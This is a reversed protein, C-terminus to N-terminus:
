FCGDKWSEDSSRSGAAPRPSPIASRRPTAIGSKGAGAGASGPRPISRRAPQPLGTRQPSLGRRVQTPQRLGSVNPSAPRVQPQLRSLQRPEPATRDYDDSGGSSNNDLYPDSSHFGPPQSIRSVNQLSRRLGPTEGQNPPNLYQSGYPSDPPSSIDSGISNSQSNRREGDQRCPSSRNSGMNSASNDIDNNGGVVSQAPQRSRKGRRPSSQNQSLSQRLSEEQQKALNEIDAVDPHQKDDDRYSDASRPSDDQSSWSGQKVIPPPPERSKKPRTFTGTDLRSIKGTHTKKVAPKHNYLPTSDASQSMPSFGRTPSPTTLSQFAPTSCSRSMRAAEDLRHILSKRVSEVEPSPHDFEQRVWKYPSVRSQLPTLPTPSSYLWSDEDDKFSLKELDIVEDEFTDSSDSKTRAKDINYKDSINNNHNPVFKVPEIEGNQLSELQLKQRGRLVENQKELKKVLDQLKHVETQPDILSDTSDM